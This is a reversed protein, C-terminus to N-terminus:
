LNLSNGDGCWPPGPFGFELLVGGAMDNGKEDVGVLVLTDEGSAGLGYYFRMGACGKQALLDDLDKRLFLGGKQTSERYRRTMAVAQDMPIRHSKPDPLPM